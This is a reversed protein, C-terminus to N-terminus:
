GTYKRKVVKGNGSSADIMYGNGACIGVHGKFSIVDGRKLDSMKSIRTYKSVKQWVASTMYGQKVGVQNLCWYVFGSCDFSNPGKAGRVYRSGLKSEAVSIFSSVNAGTKSVGTSKKASSSMLKNMTKAGVKGDVSLGNNHQFSRVATDTDSGFYGTVKRIYNLEKLRNQIRSVDDGTVGIALANGQADNSMLREQTMPGIYGDAILGSAEQFRRVAAKTYDGFTGDPETTLYGLEKLRKQFKEIEPSKEGVSYANAVADPSYLLERTEKGVRGDEPLKNMKQFKKVAEETEDGFFGTAKSIYGLERLRTQLEMVDTNEAGITITYYQAAESFLLDHMEQDAIGDVTLGHQAEFLRVADQTWEGFVGDAEDDDMYGLEMLRDQLESIVTAEMGMSLALSTYVPVSLMASLAEPAPASGSPDQAAGPLAAQASALQQPNDSLTVVLIVVVLVVGLAGSAVAIIRRKNKIHLSRKRRSLQAAARVSPTQPVALRPKVGKRGRFLATIRGIMDALLGQGRPQRRHQRYKMRMSDGAQKRKGFGRQCTIKQVVSTRNRQARGHVLCLGIIFLDDSM